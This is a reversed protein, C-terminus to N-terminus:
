TTRATATSIPRHRCTRRSVSSSPRSRAQGLQKLWYWTNDRYVAIDTKGDGDYDAPALKDNALGFSNQVLGLTSRQIYWTHDSPRFVASDAKGDGDFDFRARNAPVVAAAGSSWFGNAVSYGLKAMTVGALSQGITSDIRYQGNQMTGGGNSRVSQTIQFQGGSQALAREGQGALGAAILIASFILKKLM